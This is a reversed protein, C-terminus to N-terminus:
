ELNRDVPRYIWSVVEDFEYTYDPHAEDQFYRVGEEEMFTCSVMTGCPLNALLTIGLVPEDEPISNWEIGYSTDVSM